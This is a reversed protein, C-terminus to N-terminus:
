SVCPGSSTPLQENLEMIPGITWNLVGNILESAVAAHKNVHFRPQQSLRSALIVHM